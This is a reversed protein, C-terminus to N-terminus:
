WCWWTQTLCTKGHRWGDIGQLVASPIFTCTWLLDPRRLSSSETRKEISSLCMANFDNLGLGTYIPTCLKYLAPHFSWPFFPSLSLSGSLPPCVHRHKREMWEKMSVSYGRLAGKTGTITVPKSLKKALRSAKAVYTVETLRRDSRSSNSYLPPCPPTDAYCSPLLALHLLLPCTLSTSESLTTPIIGQLGQM